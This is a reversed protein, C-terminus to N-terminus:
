SNSSARGAAAASNKERVARDTCAARNRRRLRSSENRWAILCPCRRKKRVPPRDLSADAGVQLREANDRGAHISAVAMVADLRRIGLQFEIAFLFPELDYADAKATSAPKGPLAPRCYPRDPNRRAPQSSAAGSQCFRDTGRPGTRHRTSSAPSADGSVTGDEGRRGQAHVLADRVHGASPPEKLLRDSHSCSNPTSVCAM